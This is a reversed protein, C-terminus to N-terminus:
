MFELFTSISQSEVAIWLWAEDDSGIHVVNTDDILFILFASVRYFYLYKANFMKSGM